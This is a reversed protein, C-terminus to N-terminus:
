FMIIRNLKEGLISCIDASITKVSPKYLTYGESDKRTVGWQGRMSNFHTCLSELHHTPKKLPDFTTYCETETILVGHLSDSLASFKGGLACVLETDRLRTKRLASETYIM